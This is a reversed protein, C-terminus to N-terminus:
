LVRDGVITITRPTGGADFPPVAVMRVENGLLDVVISLSEFSSGGAPVNTLLATGTCNSNLTYTGTYQSFYSPPADVLPVGNLVLAQSATLNGKGDASILGVGGEYITAGTNITGNVTFGYNGQFTANSCAAAFTNARVSPISRTFVPALCIAAFIVLAVTTILLFRKNFNM